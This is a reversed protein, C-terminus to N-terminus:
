RGVPISVVAQWSPGWALGSPVVALRAPLSRGRSALFADGASILHNAIVVGVATTAQRFRADTAEILSGLEDKGGPTPSWDWLFQPGYARQQYYALASQYTPDTEPVPGGGPIYIQRALSWISGNFTSTDMEPQVGVLTADADFAGSATWKSLTEYYEFDGDIRAGSQIRGNDWAHDRYRERYDNGSSRRELFVAWGVVELAAYVWKRNQGLAHQGAGPFALSLFTPALSTPAPDQPLAVAIPARLARVDLAQARSAAPLLASVVLLRALTRLRHM